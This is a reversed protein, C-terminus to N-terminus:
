QEVVYRLLQVDWGLADQVHSVVPLAVHKGWLAHTPPRRMKWLRGIQQAVPIGSGVRSLGVGREDGAVPLLAVSLVGLLLEEAVTTGHRQRCVTEKVIRESKQSPGGVKAAVGVADAIKGETVIEEGQGVPDRLAYAPLLAFAHMENRPVAIKGHLGIADQASM